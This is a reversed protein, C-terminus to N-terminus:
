RGAGPASPALARAVADAGVHWVPRGDATALELVPFRLVAVRGALAVAAPDLPRTVRVAEVGAPLVPVPTAATLYLRGWPRAIGAGTGGPEVPRVPQNPQVPPAVPHQDPTPQVPMPASEDADGELSGGMGELERLWKTRNSLGELGIGFPIAFLVIGVLAISLNNNICTDDGTDCEGMGVLGGIYLALGIPSLALGVAGATTASKIRSRAYPDKTESGAGALAAWGPDRDPPLVCGVTPLTVALAFALARPHRTIM